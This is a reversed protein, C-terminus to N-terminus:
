SSPVGVAAECKTGRPLECEDVSTWEDVRGSTGEDGRGVREEASVAVSSCCSGTAGGRTRSSATGEGEGATGRRM